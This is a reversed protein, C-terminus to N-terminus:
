EGKKVEVTALEKSSANWDQWSADYKEEPYETPPEPPFQKPKPSYLADPFPGSLTSPDEKLWADTCEKTWEYTREVAWYAAANISNDLGGCMLDWYVLSAFFVTSRGVRIPQKDGPKRSANVLLADNGEGSNTRCAVIATDDEFLLAANEARVSNEPERRVGHEYKHLRLLDGFVELASRGIAAPSARWDRVGYKYALLQEDTFILRLPKKKEVLQKTWDATDLKCRVYWNAKPCSECLEKVLEADVVGYGHDAVVIAVVSEAPSHNLVEEVINKWENGNRKDSEEDRTKRYKKYEDDLKLRWDFRYKLNPQDSGFGEYLRVLRNTSTYIEADSSNDVLNHFDPGSPCRPPTGSEPDAIQCKSESGNQKVPGPFGSLRYPTLGKLAVDQYCLLCPLLKDDAPNWASLGKLTYKGRMPPVNTNPQDRGHLLRWISAAGCCSIIRCDTRHMDSIYHKHGVNYSHYLDFRSMLWNEDVFSDGVILVIGEQQPQDSM